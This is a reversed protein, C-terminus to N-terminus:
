PRKWFGGMMNPTGPGPAIVGLMGPAPTAPGLTPTVATELGSTMSAPNRPTHFAGQTKKTMSTMVAAAGPTHMLAAEGGVAQPLGGGPKLLAQGLSTMWLMWLAPGPGGLGGAVRPSNESLSESGGGPVGLPTTVGNRMRSQPSPLAGPLGLEGTTKMFPPSKM